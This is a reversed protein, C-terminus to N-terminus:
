SNYSQEDSSEENLNRPYKFCAYLGNKDQSLARKSCEIRDESMKVGCYDYLNEPMKFCFCSVNCVEELTRIKEDCYNKKMFFITNFANLNIVISFPM